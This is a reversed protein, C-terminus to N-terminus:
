EDEISVKKETFKELKARDVSSYLGPKGPIDISGGKMEIGSEIVDEEFYRSSPSIDNRMNVESLSASALAFSAGIGTEVLGGIWLNLGGERAIRNIRQSEMLGGVRQPKLNIISCSGLKVAKRAEEASRISEDLCIPTELVDALNSHNHLDRHHLPQEIMELDFRDLAKLDDFNDKSYSANADVSIDADPFRDRAKELFDIDKGKNIKIKFRNYGESDRQEMEEILKEVSSKIGISVGVEATKKSGDMLDALGKGERLSREHYLLFEGASKAMENGKYKEVRRNYDQIDTAKKIEPVIFDKVLEFASGTTEHSYFPAFQPSAEGYFRLDDRKAELVVVNRDEVTGSSIEFPERLPLRVKRVTISDFNM